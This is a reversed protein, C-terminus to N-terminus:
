GHWGGYALLLVFLIQFAVAAVLVAAGVIFKRRTM